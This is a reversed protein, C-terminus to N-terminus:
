WSGATYRVWASPWLRGDLGVAVVQFEYMLGPTPLVDIFSAAPLPQPMRQSLDRISGDTQATRRWVIYGIVGSAACWTIGVRGGAGAVTINGPTSYAPADFVVGPAAVLSMDPM